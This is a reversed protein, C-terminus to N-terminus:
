RMGANTYTRVMFVRNVRTESRTIVSIKGHWLGGALTPLIFDQQDTAEEVMSNYNIALPKLAAYFAPIDATLARELYRGIAHLSITAVPENTFHFHNRKSILGVLVLQVGPEKVGANWNVSITNAPRLRLETVTLEKTKRNLNTEIAIRGVSPARMFTREIDILTELRATQYGRDFRSRLPIRIDDHYIRVVTKHEEVLDQRLKRAVGISSRSVMRDIMETGM